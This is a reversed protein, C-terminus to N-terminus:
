ENVQLLDDFEFLRPQLLDPYERMAYKDMARIVDARAKIPKVFSTRFALYEAKSTSLFRGRGDGLDLIFKGHSRLRNVSKRIERDYVNDDNRPIDAGAGFVKRVLEWREIANQKGRHMQMLRMLREDLETETLEIPM